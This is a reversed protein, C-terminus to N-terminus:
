AEMGATKTADVPSTGEDDNGGLLDNMNKRLKRTHNTRHLWVALGYIATVVMGVFMWFHVWCSRQTTGLPNAEDYIVEDDASEGTVTEAVTELAEVVTDLPAPLEDVTTAPTVPAPAPTPTTGGDTPTTDGGNNDPTPTPTPVAETVTLSGLEEVITYNSAKAGRWDIQYGNVSTGLETQSGTTSAVVYDNGVLGSLTLESSTLASGDYPKTASGTIVTLVAPRIQYTADLEGTYNGKGKVTVTVTGANTTDESYVLEYDVGEVLENGDADKVTPKQQQERGNYTVDEPDEITFTRKLTSDDPNDPDAQKHNDVTNTDEGHVPNGAPDTGDATARNSVSGAAIDADTVTYTTYFERSEGVALTVDSQSFGTKADAVTIGSVSVNGKNTVKITYKVVDGAAYSGAAATKEVVLDNSVAETTTDTRGEDGTVKNGSPDTATGTAVNVVKGAVMDAETVTYSTPIVKSEGRALDFADSVLGTLDDTVVVGTLDVNGNNVVTLTYDIVDGAKVDTVGGDSKVIYFSPAAKETHDEHTGPTVPTPDVPDVPNDGTATATNVVKGAVVDAQTVTYTYHLEKYEGPLLSAIQATEGQALVVGDLQDNVNVNNITVNGTNKVTVTYNVVDGEKLLTDAAVDSTKTVTLQPNADDVNTKDDADYTKDIGSFTVTATNTFEGALIDKEQITYTATTTVTEGPRVNEFVSQELLAGEIEGFTVTKATDYINKATITYTVTDGLGYTGAEHTKTVVVNDDVDDTVTLTGIKEVVTYNSQKATYGNGGIGLIGANAWEISYTNASSGVQTQSGTTAFGITEGKVLGSYSGPALLAQGDYTKTRDPTVVTLTAPLIQYTATGAGTYNGKGTVTVTVTGTNTTDQTYTLDYDVGEVLDNGDADKVAPKQKQSDGNYTVDDPDAVTFTRKLTPDDPNDPDTQKHNDVTCTDEGHVPNGAPDTGNATALNEVKGAAIDADTVVYTTTFERSENVGLTVGSENLGTKADAVTIGSVTVNGENTVKIIYKVVDGAAYSGVAATKEVTLRGDIDETTSTTEGQGPVNNGSPDTATATAVNVVKGAVMDAETVTYTTTFTAYDGKAIDVSDSTFGTLEDTVTVGTLDVNGNNTATVTYTIVDGAKVGETKDATKEIYLSASASETPDTTEGPTVDTQKDSPNDATATATNAVKGAVVDAQTVVYSYHLTASAGPALSAIASSEGATLVAGELEDIVVVNTLTLNGANTATVTYSVVDGEKLLTGEAVDSSKTVVLKPNANDIPKDSDKGGITESDEGYPVRPSEPDKPNPVDDGQATVTNKYSGAVIDSETIVHTTTFEKSEGVVLEAINEYLGTQADNVKVNYYPVNGKNTVTITYEVTEGLKYSGSASAKATKTVELTADVDDVDTEVTGDEPTPVVKPDDTTGGTTTAINLVDGNLIDASIVKHSAAIATTTAGPALSAVTVPAFGDANDDVVQFNKATLNGNNTVTIEYEITEGLKFAGNEGTGRNTVIKSVVLDARGNDIPYDGEDGGIVETDEGSPTVPTDTKPDTVADATATATNAYTGVVIDAESIVHTTTFQKEEDVALTEIIENLGTKPDVVKVNNYAVNGKNTVTITYTVEEGREYAKGNAPASATKEVDLTTNLEDITKTDSGKGDVDNGSPDTGKATATNVMTGALIDAETVKHTATFTASQGPELSDVTKEGFNDANPDTVTINTVTQNGTNKVTISYNITEGLKFAGDAATGNQEAAKTVTLAAAPTDTPETDTGPEVPVVPKDPDTSTGTATAENVVSGARVDAETVVHTADFEASAGPALSAITQEEFGDANADNVKVNNVTLNGDNTVVIKYSITEGLKYAKGDAPESTATKTVTVHGNKSETKDEKEGPVVEPDGGDTKGSATATNLVKGALIDSETVTYVYKVTASAGPALTGVEASQGEALTAGTLQDEVVVDTATLNGSNTVKVDYAIQEGLAYTSGNAPKSTTTKEVTLQAAAEDAEVTDEASYTKDTGSFSVTATNKFSGALIDAETITYTATATVSAGPAVNEFVSQDLSVGEQETITLTKATDYINKATITFSVTDGLYYTGATHTKTIVKSNDSPETVKLTGLTAAVTYNNKDATGDWDIKYGNESEGVYTQSGTTTFTATENKVFGSISGAATLAEGDYEKEADPTSVTLTAPTVKLTATAATDVNFQDTVDNGGKDKIVFADVKATTEGANTISANSTIEYTFGTPLSGAISGTAEHADGDYAGEYGTLKVVISSDDKRVSLSGNVKAIDYNNADTNDKLTYTFENEKSDGVNKVSNSFSYFAVGQEGVFSGSTVSASEAKQEEGNYVFDGDASTITVQRKNITLKETGYVYGDFNESSARVSVVKSDSVNTASFSSPDETWTVGDLSYEIKATNNYNVTATAAPLTYTNGDYTEVKDSVSLTINGEASAKNVILKGYVKTIEYNSALTGDKLVYDFENVYGETNPLIFNSDYWTYNQSVNEGTAFGDGSVTVGRRTITKGDYKKNGSDSTLTVQRKTIKYEKTVSGTYNGAGTITVTITGVNKFDTTEVGDRKYSITYDTGAILANGDKDEVLPVWQHNAADYKSDIPDDIEVGKYSPNPEEDTGPVISQKTVELTGNIYTIDYNSVKATASDKAAFANPSSGEDTQTGYFDYDFSQGSVLGTKETTESATAVHKTLATGDYVKSADASTLTVPRATVNLYGKFETNIGSFNSTVDDGAANFIKFTDVEVYSQGKDTQSGKLTYSSTFGAPVGMVTATTDEGELATGDYVKTAGAPVVYIAATNPTVELEGLEEEVTYNSAKATSDAAAWDITYTNSSKGVTTQSGTTLFPAYDGDVFGTVKGQATLASGNYQQKASPTTVKLTAPTIKITGDHKDLKLDATVDVGDTNKIVFTDATATIGDGNVDTAKASSAAEVTYGAPLNTVTVTAGHEKGDYVGTYGTTTVVVVNSSETVTLTGLQESVTYNGQKATGTWEIEYTNTSSGTKTQSGTTSFVTTENNVFGSISGAATLPQGDYSKSDSPTVVNLTAPNIQYTRDFSGSYNGKGTITVTIIGDVNTFDTRTGYGVEYDTGEVLTKEGDMVAPVWKHGQGDYTVNSPDDVTITYTEDETPVISKATVTLTGKNESQIYYNSEQASGWEITYGNESSGEDTQSGTANVTATEGNVLGTLNDATAAATLPTGDYVKSASPTSVQLPAPTIKYTKAVTGSYNGKGTIVVTITGTNTFDDTADESRKYVVGYDVGETLVTGQASKVTPAWKQAAGNYVVDSPENVTAGTYSDGDEPNISQATVTLTGLVPESIEYNSLRDAKIQYEITNTSSGVETQSGTCEIVPYGDSGLVYDDYVIGGNLHPLVDYGDWDNKTTLATGDYVKTASKTKVQVPRKTITITETATATGDFNPSTARINVVVPETTANTQKISSPDSYWDGYPDSALQYEITVDDTLDNGENDKPAASATGASHSNADYVATVDAGALNLNAASLKNVTLDGEVTTISYNTASTGENLEYTFANKSTGANTQSGTTAATFGQEGVFGENKEADYATATVQDNTLATGDYDKTASGSTLTVPRKTIEYTKTISGSYNGKGTITVTITGDVNTFDTRDNFSVEYDTGEVLTTEGDKVVPAWKHERGDYVTNSPDNVSMDNTLTKANITLSGSVSINYNGTSDTIGDAKAVSWTYNSVQTYPTTSAATGAVKAGELTLTEGALLGTAKAATLELAQEQGNYTVNTSDDVTINLPNVQLSYEATAAHEADSNTYNSNYARVKVDVKSVTGDAARVVDTVSPANATWTKGGDTSYEVTTGETVNVTVSGSHAQADYSGSYGTANVTLGDKKTITLTASVSITYNDTSDAGSKAVSWQYGSLGANDKTYVGADTGSIPCDWLKLTEGTVVGTVTVGEVNKGDEAYIYKTQEQGTYETSFSGTVTIEAKSITFEKEASLEPYNKTAAWTAVVKYDGANVPAADLAEWESGNKKYYTYTAQDSHANNSSALTNKSDFQGDYTWGEISVSANFESADKKTIELTGLQDEGRTYNSSKTNEGWAIEGTVANSTSATVDPGITTATATASEGSVLGEVTATGVLEAGDYAKSDTNTKVYYTKPAIKITADATLTTTVGGVTVDQKVKVPYEGADTYTPATTNWTAGGDTSYQVAGADILKKAQEVYKSDLGTNDNISIDVSVGHSAGDYTGEYGTASLSAWLADLTYTQDKSYIYTVTEGATRIAAAQGDREKDMWGIFVHDEASPVSDTVVFTDDKTFGYNYYWKQSGSTQTTDSPATWSAGGLVLNYGAKGAKKKYTLTIVNSSDNSTIKLASTSAKSYSYGAITPKEIESVKIEDNVKCGSVTKPEAIENSSEDVYKITYKSYQTFTWAGTFTITEGKRSTTVSDKDWGAFTWYGNNAADEYVTQTPSKAKVTKNAQYTSKDVPLYSNIAGPLSMASTGSVFQYQVDTKPAINCTATATKTVTAGSAIDGSTITYTGTYTSTANVTLVVSGRNCDADTATYHVTGTFTGDTNQTLNEVDVSTGNIDASNVHVGTVTDKGSGTTKPTITVTFTLEDGAAVNNTRDSVATVTMDPSKASVTFNQSMSSQPGRYYGFAAVYGAAKAAAMVTSLGPYSAINGWNTGDVAYMDGNGSANLGTVIYNDNPKVFFVIYGSESSTTYNNVTFSSTAPTFAVNSVDSSNHWNFYVVDANEITTTFTANYKGTTSDTKTVQVTKKAVETDYTAIVEVTGEAVGTLVGNSDITAISPDSTTWTVDGSFGTAVYPALKGVELTDNGTVALEKVESKKLVHITYTETNTKQNWGSGTTYTHTVTTSGVKVGTVTASSGSSALTAVGSDSNAWSHNRNGSGALDISEGVYIYKEYTTDEGKQDPIEITEDSSSAYIYGSYAKVVATYVGDQTFDSDDHYYQSANLKVGDRYYEIPLMSGSLVSSDIVENTESDILTPVWWHSEGVTVPSPDQIYFSRKKVTVTYTLAQDNSHSAGDKDVYSCSVTYDKSVGDFSAVYSATISLTASLGDESAVPQDHSDSYWGTAKSGEPGNFTLTISDGMTVETPGSISYEASATETASGDAGEDSNEDNNIVTADDVTVAAPTQAAAADAPKESEVYLTVGQAIDAASITYTGNADADLEKRDSGNVSISVEALQYDTNAAATFMFDDSTPVTVKSTPAAIVQNAYTITSNSLELAIDAETADQADAAPQEVAEATKEDVSDDEAPAQADVASETTEVSEQNDVAGEADDEVQDQVQEVAEEQAATLEKQVEALAGTPWMSWVLLASAAVSAIKHSLPHESARRKASANNKVSM